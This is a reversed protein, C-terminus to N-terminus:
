MAEHEQVTDLRSLPRSPPKVGAYSSLRKEALFSPLDQDPMRLCDIPFLGRAGTARNEAYAWGDDYRKLVHVVDGPQVRMEDPMTPTFPRAVPEAAPFHAAADTDATVFTETSTHGDASDDDVASADSFPNASEPATLYDSTAYSEPTTSYSRAPAQLGASRRASSPPLPFAWRESPSFPRVSIPTQVSDPTLPEGFLNRPPAMLVQGQASHASAPTEISSISEYSGTSSRSGGRLTPSPPSYTTAAATPLTVLVSNDAQAM